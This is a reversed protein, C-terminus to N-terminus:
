KAEKQQAQGGVSEIMQRATQSFKDAEIALKKTLAGKALIKVRVANKKVLGVAKLAALDITADGEFDNLQGTNVIAYEVKFLYNSFGKKPLRRFLPMQGGEFGMRRSYGSRSKQGKTGRGCTKGQGAAIGRGKRKRKQRKVPVANLDNLNM